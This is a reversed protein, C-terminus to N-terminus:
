HEDLLEVANARGYVGVLPYLEMEPPIRADLALAREGNLDVCLDGVDSATCAITDGSSWGEQIIDATSRFWDPKVADILLDAKHDLVWSRLLGEAVRAPLRDPLDSPGLSTFGLEVGGFWDGQNDVLRVRFARGPRRAVVLADNYSECRRVTRGDEESLRAHRGLRCGEWPSSRVFTLVVGSRLGCIALTARPDLVQTGHLIRGGHPSVQRCLGDVTESLDLRLTAAVGGSMLRVEVEILEPRRVGADAAVLMSGHGHCRRCRHTVLGFGLPGFIGRRGSGHCNRCRPLEANPSVLSSSASSPM